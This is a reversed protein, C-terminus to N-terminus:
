SASESSLNIFAQLASHNLLQPGLNQFWLCWRLKSSSLGLGLSKIERFRLPRILLVFIHRDCQTKKNKVKQSCESVLPIKTTQGPISGAGGANSARLRLWQVALSTGRQTISLVLQSDRHNCTSLGSHLSTILLHCEDNKNNCHRFFQDIWQLLSRRVKGETPSWNVRQMHSKNDRLRNSGFELSFLSHGRNTFSGTYKM